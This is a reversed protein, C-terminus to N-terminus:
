AALKKSCLGSGRLMLAIRYHIVGSLQDADDRAGIQRMEWRRVSCVRARQFRQQASFYNDRKRVFRQTDDGIAHDRRAYAAYGDNGRLLRVMQYADDRAAVEQFRTLAHEVFLFSALAHQRQSREYAPPHPTPVPLRLDFLDYHPSCQHSRLWIDLFIPVVRQAILRILSAFFLAVPLLRHYGRRVFIEGVGWGPCFQQTILVNGRMLGVIFTLWM